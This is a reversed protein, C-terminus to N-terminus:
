GSAFDSIFHRFLNFLCDGCLVFLNKMEFDTDSWIITHIQDDIGDHARLLYSLSISHVGGETDFSSQNADWWRTWDGTLDKLNSMGTLKRVKFQLLATWEFGVWTLM